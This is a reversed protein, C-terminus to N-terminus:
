SKLAKARDSLARGVLVIVACVIGIRQTTSHLIGFLAAAMAVLSGFYVGYRWWDYARFRTINVMAYVAVIFAVSVCLIYPIM